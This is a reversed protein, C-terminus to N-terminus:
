PRGTTPQLDDARGRIFILAILAAIVFIYNFPAALDLVPSHAAGNTSDVGGTALFTTPDTFAHILMPWVINGTARLVLYMMLGFGFTMVVTLAVVVVEQGSILNVTHSLAFFLSSLVAVSWERHGGNRLITVVIGRYLFEEVFGILLGVLLSTVIVAAGYSAYDIGFFRLVIPVVALVVFIWMWWRGRVPQRAFVSKTWNVSAAFALLLVAGVVLPAGISFFVSAPSSFTNERDIMGGFLRGIGLGALQYLALYVVVLLVAKWWRGHAWFSTWGTQDMMGRGCAVGRHDGIRVSFLPFGSLESLGM